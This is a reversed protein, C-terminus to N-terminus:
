SAAHTLSNLVCNLDLGALLMQNGRGDKNSLERRNEVRGTGEKGRRRQFDGRCLIINRIRIKQPTTETIAACDTRM